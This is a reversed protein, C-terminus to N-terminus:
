RMLCEVLVAVDPHADVAYQCAASRADRYTVFTHHREVRDHPPCHQDCNARLYLSGRGPLSSPGPLSHDSATGPIISAFRTAPLLTKRKTTPALTPAGAGAGAAVCLTAPIGGAAPGVEAAPVLGVSHSAGRGAWCLGKGKLLSAARRSLM